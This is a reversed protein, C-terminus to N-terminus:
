APSSLATPPVVVENGAKRAQIALEFVYKQAGGWNSKTIIYLIKLGRKAM